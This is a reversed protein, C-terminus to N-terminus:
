EMSPPFGPGRDWDRLSPMNTAPRRLGGTFSINKSNLAGAPRCLPHRLETPQTFLTVPCSRRWDARISYIQSESREQKFFLLPWIGREWESEQSGVEAGDGM